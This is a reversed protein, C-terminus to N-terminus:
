KMTRCANKEHRGVRRMPVTKDKLAIMNMLNRGFLGELVPIWTDVFIKLEM